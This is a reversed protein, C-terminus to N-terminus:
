ARLTGEVQECGGPWHDERWAEVEGKGGVVQVVGGQVSVEVLATEQGGDVVPVLRDTQACTHTHQPHVTHTPVAHCQTHSLSM